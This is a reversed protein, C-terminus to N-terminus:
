KRDIDSKTGTPFKIYRHTSLRPVLQSCDTQMEGTGGPRRWSGPRRGGCITRGVKWPRACRPDAASHSTAVVHLRMRIRICRARPTDRAARTSEVPAKAWSPRDASGRLLVGFRPLAPKPPGSWYMAGAARCGAVNWTTPRRSTPRADQYPLQCTPRSVAVPSRRSVACGVAACRLRGICERTLTVLRFFPRETTTVILSRPGTLRRREISREGRAASSSEIRCSPTTGTVISCTATARVCCYSEGEGVGRGTRGGDNEHRHGASELGVTECSTVKKGSHSLPCM